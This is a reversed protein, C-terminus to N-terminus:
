DQDDIWGSILSAAREPNENVLEAIQDRMQRVGMEDESLELGSLVSDALTAEGLIADHDDMAPPVGVLEEASPLAERKNAKFTTYLIVLIAVLALASLALTSVVSSSAINLGMFGAPAATELGATVFTSAVPIMSVHVTGESGNDKSSMDVLARVEREIRQLEATRIPELDQDTPPATPQDANESEPAPNRENYINIFYDRPINVVAAIKTPHGRPDDTTTVESGIATDFLTESTEDTTSTGTASTNNISAQLNARAGTEAAGRNESQDLESSSRSATIAVSGEDQNLKEDRTTMQHSIDAQVHVTVIVGKIFAFHDLLKDRLLREQNAVHELYTSATFNEDTRAKYQRNTTGDIVRVNDLSLGATSSAVLNAIADVTSQNIGSGFVTVSATPTRDAQGLSRRTPVDMIVNARTIGTMRAVVRSLENQRAINAMQRSQLTTNTWSQRDVLTDFTLRTDAPMQGEQALQALVLRQRDPHVMIEGARSEYPINNVQLFSEVRSAEEPTAGNVLPVLAPKASYQAVVFLAMLLVIALSGIALKQSPTLKGLQQKIRDTAQRLREM